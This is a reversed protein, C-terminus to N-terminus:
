GRILLQKLKKTTPIGKQNWGRVKYYQPLMEGLKVMTDPNDYDSPEDTLRQPLCDNEWTFGERVNFLREMNFSREGLQLFRGSTMNLGTALKVAEAHPFLYLSNFPIAGPLLSGLRDVIFRSGIIVKGLLKNVTSSHNLKYLANPMLSFTTFLCFGTASVAETANQFLVTLGPKAKTTIPDMPIPGVVELLSLFGGNLHCGGRNATAYGLGQGVAKRPEYSAIELGKSHIAFDQGGYKEALYKTGEALDSFEGERYAIKPIIDSINESEGFHLGFDKIGKEALEMVFALTGALSITDMGLIDAQYNWQSIKELDANEINAGLLGITEYEPGKVEKGEVMVRRECRIPCSICGSNRTLHKEALTEGSIAEAHEFRGKKFNGTPLVGSENCKNVFNASGYLGMTQGTFEHQKLYQVWRQIFSRFKVPNYVPITSTGYAVLGKINKSGMVAGVGCRGLVREGSVACAYRVLNEGAPGIVLMGYRHDFNEQTKETDLGWLHTADKITIEGDIIEIYCPQSARGKILLGDYGARRLKVGFQGGCNSSAIGGTLVNKTTMNFRSSSPAGTGNLPSTNIIILNEPSLPDIGPCLEDYLIRAALAKGGLYLEFYQDSIPYETVTETSLDVQAYRLKIM